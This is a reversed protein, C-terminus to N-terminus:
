PTTTEPNPFPCPSLNAPSRGLNSRSSRPPTPPGPTLSQASRSPRSAELMKMGGDAILEQDLEFVAGEFPAEKEVAIIRFGRPSEGFNLKWLHMYWAAQLRFDPNRQIERGFGYQTAEERTTKLDYIFGDYGIFDISGKLPTGMYTASLAIEAAHVRIGHSSMVARLGDAYHLANDYEDCDCPLDDPQLTTKWYEYAAKGEKTNKKVDPEPKYKAFVDPQLVCAHTLIGERLAATAKPPNALRHKYKAPSRLLVKAMTQNLYSTLADYGTRTVTFAKAAIAEITPPKYTM